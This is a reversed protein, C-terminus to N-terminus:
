LCVMLEMGKGEQINKPNKQLMDSDKGCTDTSLRHLVGTATVSRKTCLLLVNDTNGAETRIVDSLRQGNPLFVMM